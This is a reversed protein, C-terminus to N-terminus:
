AGEDETSAARTGEPKWENPMKEYHVGPMTLLLDAFEEVTREGRLLEWNTTHALPGCGESLLKARARTTELIRDVPEGPKTVFRYWNKRDKSDWIKDDRFWRFRYRLEYLGEANRGVHALWDCHSLAVYWVGVTGESIEISM